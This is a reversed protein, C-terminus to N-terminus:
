SKSHRNKVLMLAFFYEEFATSIFSTALSSQMGLNFFAVLSNTLMWNLRGARYGLPATQTQPAGCGQEALKAPSSHAAKWVSAAWSLLIM